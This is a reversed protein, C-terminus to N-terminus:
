GTASPLSLNVPERDIVDTLHGGTRDVSGDGARPRLRIGGRSELRGDDHEVEVPCHRQEVDGPLVDLAREDPDGGPVADVRAPM